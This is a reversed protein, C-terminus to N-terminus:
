AIVMLPSWIVNDFSDNSNKKLCIYAEFSCNYFSARKDKDGKRKVFNNPWLANTQKGETECTNTNILFGLNRGHPDTASVM